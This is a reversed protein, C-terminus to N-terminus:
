VRGGVLTLITVDGEEETQGASALSSKRGVGVTGENTVVLVAPTIATNEVDLTAAVCLGNTQRGLLLRINVPGNAVSGNQLVDNEVGVGAFNVIVVNSQGLVGTACVRDLVNGVGLNRAQGLVHGGVDNEESAISATDQRWNGLEVTGLSHEMEDGAVGRLHCTGFITDSLRLSSEGAAEGLGEQGEMGHLVGPHKGVLNLLVLGVGPQEVSTPDTGTKGLTASSAGQLISAGDEISDVGTLESLDIILIVFDEVKLDRSCAGINRIVQEVRLLSPGGAGVAELSFHDLQALEETLIEGLILALSSLINDFSTGNNLLM